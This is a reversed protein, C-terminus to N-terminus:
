PMTPPLWAIAGVATRSGGRLRGSRAPTGHPRAPPPEGMYPRQPLFLVDGPQCGPDGLGPLGYSVVAGGGRQWLGALARLLSTKGAGSPGTILLSDGAAVQPAPPPRAPTHTTLM